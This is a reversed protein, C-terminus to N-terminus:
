FLFTDYSAQYIHFMSIIQYIKSTYITHVETRSVPSRDGDKWIIINELREEVM